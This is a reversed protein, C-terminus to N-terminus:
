ENQEKLEKLEKMLEDMKKKDDTGKEPTTKSASKNIQKKGYNNEKFSRNVMAELAKDLM